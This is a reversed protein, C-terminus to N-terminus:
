RAPFPCDPRLACRECDPKRAMCVRRGHLILGHSTFTWDKEPLLKM